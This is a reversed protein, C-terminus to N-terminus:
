WTAKDNKHFTDSDPTDVYNSWRYLGASSRAEIPTARIDQHKHRFRRTKNRQGSPKIM